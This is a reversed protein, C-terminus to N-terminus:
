EKGIIEGVKRRATLAKDRNVAVNEIKQEARAIAQREASSEQDCQSIYNELKAYTKEFGKLINNLNLVM